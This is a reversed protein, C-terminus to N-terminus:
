YLFTIASEPPTRSRVNIAQMRADANNHASGGGAASLWIREILKTPKKAHKLLHTLQRHFLPSSQSLSRVRGESEGGCLSGSSIGMFITIDNISFISLALPVAPFPFLRARKKKRGLRGM